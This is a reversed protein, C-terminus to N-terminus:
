EPKAFASLTLETGGGIGPRAELRLTNPLITTDSGKACKELEHLLGHLASFTQWNAPNANRIQKTVTFASEHTSM